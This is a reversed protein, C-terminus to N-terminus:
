IALARYPANGFIIGFIIGFNWSIESIVGKKVM